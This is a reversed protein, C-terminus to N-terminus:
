VGSLAAGPRGACEALPRFLRPRECGRDSLGGHDALPTPTM